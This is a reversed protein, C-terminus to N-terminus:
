RTPPGTTTMDRSRGVPAVLELSESPQPQRGPISKARRQGESLDADITADIERLTAVADHHANAKLTRRYKSAIFISVIFVALAIPWTSEM